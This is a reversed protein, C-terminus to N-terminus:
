SNIYDLYIEACGINQVLLVVLGSPPFDQTWRQQGDRGYWLWIIYQVRIAAWDILNQLTLLYQVILLLDILYSREYSLLPGSFANRLFTFRFSLQHSRNKKAAFMIFERKLLLVAYCRSPAYTISLLSAVFLYAFPIMLKSNLTWQEPQLLNFVLLNRLNVDDDIQSAIVFGNNFLFSAYIRFCFRSVCIARSRSGSRPGFLIDGGLVPWCPTVDELSPILLIMSVLFHPLVQFLGKLMDLSQKAGANVVSWFIGAIGSINSLKMLVLM